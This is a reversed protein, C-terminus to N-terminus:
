GFVRGKELVIKPAPDEVVDWGEGDFIIPDIQPSFEDGERHFRMKWVVDHQVIANVETYQADKGAAQLVRQNHKTYARHAITFGAEGYKRVRSVLAASELGSVLVTATDWERSFTGFVAIGALSAGSALTKLKNIQQINKLDPASALRRVAEEADAEPVAVLVKRKRPNSGVYAKAELALKAKAASGNRITFRMYYFSRASGDKYHVTIVDLPKHQFTLQWPAKVSEQARATAGGGSLLAFLCPLVCAAFIRNM